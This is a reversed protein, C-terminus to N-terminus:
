GNNNEKREFLELLKSSALSPNTKGLTEIISGIEMVAIYICAPVVLPVSFGLGPIHETFAQVFVALVLALVLVVKHGLGERMKSSAFDHRILSCIVGVIVDLGVFSLACLVGWVEEASFTIFPGLYPM